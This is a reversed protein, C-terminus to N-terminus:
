GGGCLLGDSANVATHHKGTRRALGFKCQAEMLERAAVMEDLGIQTADESHFLAIAKATAGFLTSARLLAPGAKKWGGARELNATFQGLTRENAQKLADVTFKLPAAAKARAEICLNVAAQIDDAM